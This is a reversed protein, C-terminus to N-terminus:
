LDRMRPLVKTAFLEMSRHTKGGPINQFNLELIGAGLEDHIWRVREFVTEPSGVMIQGVEIRKQLEHGEHRARQTEVDRGYYGASAAANDVAATSTSFAVRRAAGGAEVLDEIAQEDTEAVHVGLRYMVHDPTPEWGRAHCQERYYRAAQSAFPVTTFAFGIHLHHKAALDGSEPSSGSIYIPPHPVQAPKPWISIARYEYYRGAWGFVEPETWTKIILRIAEEFRDRSEAPNVNYTVYENSTGRLMGAVVRGGTMNDLMAFEEAVRVPNLIPVTPGLVAVKARKVRQTIAGAMIMPNPTLSMPAFHHEACTVWDYGLEDALAFNSLSTEFSQQAVETQFTTTPVPWTGRPAPGRYPSPSFVAAKMYSSGQEGLQRGNYGAARHCARWGDHSRVLCSGESLM